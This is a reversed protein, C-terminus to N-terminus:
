LHLLLSLNPRLFSCFAEQVGVWSVYVIEGNLKGIICRHGLDMRAKIARLSLFPRFAILASYDNPELMQFHVPVRPAIPIVPDRLSHVFVGLYRFDPQTLLRVAIRQLLGVAGERQFVEKGSQILGM